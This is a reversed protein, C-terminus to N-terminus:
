PLWPSIYDDEWVFFFDSLSGAGGIIWGDPGPLIPKFNIPASGTWNNYRTLDQDLIFDDMILPIYYNLTGLIDGSYFINNSPKGNTIWNAVTASNPNYVFVPFQEKRLTRLVYLDTEWQQYLMPDGGTNGIALTQDFAFESDPEPVELFIRQDANLRNIIEPVSTNPAVSPKTGPNQILYFAFYTYFINGQMAIESEVASIPNMLIYQSANETPTKWFLHRDNHELNELITYFIPYLVDTNVQIDAYQLFNTNWETLYEDMGWIVMIKCNVSKWYSFLFELIDLYSSQSEDSDSYYIEADTLWTSYFGSFEFIVYADHVKEFQTNERFVVLKEYYDSRQWYEHHYSTIEGSMEIAEKVFEVSDDSDTFYWLDHLEGEAADARMTAGGLPIAAAFLLVATLLATILKM